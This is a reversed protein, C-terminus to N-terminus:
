KGENKGDSKDGSWWLQWGVGSDKSINTHNKHVDQSAHAHSSEVAAGTKESSTTIQIRSTHPLSLTAQVHVSTRLARSTWLLARTAQVHLCM